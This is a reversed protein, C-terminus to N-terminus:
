LSKYSNLISLNLQNFLDNVDIVIITTDDTTNHSVYTALINCKNELSEVYLKKYFNVITNNTFLPPYSNFPADTCLIINYKKANEIVSIDPVAIVPSYIPDYANSNKNKKLSFDGFARTVMLYGNVRCNFLFGGEESIRDKENPYNFDHDITNLIIDDNKSFVISRSDGLNIQYIRNNIIDILVCSCTSGYLKNIIYLEKDFEIFTKVLQDKVTDANDTNIKALSDAIRIHLYKSCYDAVHSYDLKMAGGHGDFVAFYIFDGIKKVQFKDEHARQQIQNVSWGSYILDEINLPMNTHTNNNDNDM